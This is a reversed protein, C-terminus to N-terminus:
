AMVSRWEGSAVILHDVLRLGLDSSVEALRKTWLLDSRSAEPNGSPHNHVVIFATAGVDLANRVVTQIEPSAGGVSGEAITAVWILKWNADLYLALVREHRLFGLDLQLYRIVDDNTALVPGRRVQELLSSQVLQVSARILAASKLGVFRALKPSSTTLIRGVSGFERIM